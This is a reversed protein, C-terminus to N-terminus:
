RAEHTSRGLRRQKPADIVKILLDNVDETTKAEQIIDNRFDALGSVLLRHAFDSLEVVRQEEAMHM